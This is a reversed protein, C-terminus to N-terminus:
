ARWARPVFRYVFAWLLYVGYCYQDFSRQCTLLAGKGNWAPCNVRWLGAYKVIDWLEGNLLWGLNLFAFSQTSALGHVNVLLYRLM